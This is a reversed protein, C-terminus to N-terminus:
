KMDFKIRFYNNFIIMNFENLVNEIIQNKNRIKHELTIIEKEFEEKYKPNLNMDISLVDIDLEDYVTQDLEDYVTQVSFISYIKNFITTYDIYRKNKDIIFEKCIDIFPTEEYQQKNLIDKLSDIDTFKEKIQQVDLDPEDVLKLYKDYCNIFNYLIYSLTEKCFTTKTDNIYEIYESNIHKFIFNLLNIFRDTSLLKFATIALITPHNDNNNLLYEKLIDESEIINIMRFINIIRFEKDKNWHKIIKNVIEFNILYKNSLKM